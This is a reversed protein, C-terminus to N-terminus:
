PSRPWPAAALVHFFWRSSLGVWATRTLTPEVASCIDPSVKKLLRKITTDAFWNESSNELEAVVAM